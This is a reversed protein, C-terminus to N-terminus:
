DDVRRHLKGGAALVAKKMESKNEYMAKDAALLANECDVDGSIMCYGFACTYRTKSLNDRMRAVDAKVGDEDTEYYLVMFEDGGVRYAVKRVVKDRSICDAVSRLATDGAEHGESDNIWKLDNMDVSCVASPNKRVSGTDHYFSQRNYLGTLADTKSLHTYLFLYYLVIVSAFLNAYDTDTENIVNILVGCLAVVVIYVVGMVTGINYKIYKKVFLVVFILAYIIFVYYPLSSLFRGNGSWHNDSTIHFIWHTWQSTFIVPVYILLPIFLFKSKKELPAVTEMMAYTIIPHLCYVCSSLLFRMLIFTDHYEAWEELSWAISELVILIITIRTSKIMKKPLHVGLILLAWLGILETLMIYHELIYDMLSM